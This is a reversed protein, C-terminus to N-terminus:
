NLFCHPSLNIRVASPPAATRSGPGPPAPGGRPIAHCSPSRIAGSTLRLLRRRAARWCALVPSAPGRAPELLSPPLHPVELLPPEQLDVTSRVVCYCRPPAPGIRLPPPLVSYKQCRLDCVLLVYDLVSLVFQEYDSITQCIYLLTSFSWYILTPICSIFLPYFQLVVLLM